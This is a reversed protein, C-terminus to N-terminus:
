LEDELWGAVGARLAQIDPRELEEETLMLEDARDGLASVLWKSLAHCFAGGEDGESEDWIDAMATAYRVIEVDSFVRWFSNGLGDGDVMYPANMDSMFRLVRDLLSATDICAFCCVTHSHITKWMAAVLPSEEAMKEAALTRAAERREGRLEGKVNTPVCVSRAWSVTYAGNVSHEELWSELEHKVRDPVGPAAMKKKVEEIVYEDRYKMNTNEECETMLSDLAALVVEISRNSLEDLKAYAEQAMPKGACRVSLTETM